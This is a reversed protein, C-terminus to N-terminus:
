RPLTVEVRTGPSANALRVSGGALEVLEAVIALGLGTGSAYGTDRGREFRRLLRDPDEDGLGPGHDLVEIRDVDDERTLSVVIPPAGYRHANALLNVLIHDLHHPDIAVALGHRVRNDVTDTLDLDAALRDIVARLEVEAPSPAMGGADLKALLLLDWVLTDLRRVNRQLPELLRGRAAADDIPLRELTEAFGSIVTLPTRLEHSVSAIFRDKTADAERLQTNLRQLETNAEALESVVERLERTRLDALQAARQERSGLAGIAAWTTAAVVLTSLGLLWPGLQTWNPVFSATPRVEVVWGETPRGIARVEVLDGVPPPGVTAVVPFTRSNPDRITVQVEDDLPEIANVFNAQSLGIGFVGRPEGDRDLFPVALVAGPEGEDQSLLDTAASLHAQGDTLAAESAAAVSPLVGLDVGRLRAALSPPYVYRVPWLVAGDADATLEFGPDERQRAALWGELEEREVREHLEIGVVAPSRRPLGLQEVVADFTTAELAEGRDLAVGTAWGLGALMELADQLQDARSAAIAALRARAHSHQAIGTLTAAVVGVIVIAVVITVQLRRGQM